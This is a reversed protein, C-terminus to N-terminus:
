GRINKVFAAVAQGIEDPSDEQVFHAGKVTVERQNPWSRCYERQRGTLISGPDANIFLKPLDCRALWAGYDDVIQCVEPPEGEIPIQRPWTLTPRRDEGPDLYPKRYHNMEEDTLNRIVAGPLVREVFINKDLVMSEGAKSRFGQFAGRANEPFDEWDITKVLAEMYAVGQVKNRNQNAWDFGLASGWDHAVFIVNNTIGIQQWLAFLYERQETYTYREPGSNELKESDGMGILDCAILRGLGACHPMINRWLYSSTPNGHQFVIPDGEGQDVYAMRKSNVTAFKREYRPDTSIM